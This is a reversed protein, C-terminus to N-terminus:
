NWPPPPTLNLVPDFLNCRPDFKSLFKSNNKSNCETQNPKQSVNKECTSQYAILGDLGFETYM